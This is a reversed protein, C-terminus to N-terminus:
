SISALSPSYSGCRMRFDDSGRVREVPVHVREREKSCDRQRNGLGRDPAQDASAPRIGRARLRRDHLRLPLSGKAQDSADALTEANEVVAGEGPRHPEPVHARGHRVLDSRRARFRSGKGAHAGPTGLGIQNSALGICSDASRQSLALSLKGDSSVFAQYTKHCPPLAMLDLEAVNWGEWLIRRSTPNSKLQDVVIQIQDIGKQRRPCWWDRWQAQYTRGISGHEEAFKDDGLIRAEFETQSIDEGTEERYKALPWDTWIHVDQELLDRINTSGSLMWLMEKIATKWYIRRTTLVPFTTSVDYRMHRGFLALTGVGTRDM